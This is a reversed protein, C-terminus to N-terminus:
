TCVDVGMCVVIKHKSFSTAHCSTCAHYPQNNPRISWHKNSAANCHAPVVFADSSKRRRWIKM